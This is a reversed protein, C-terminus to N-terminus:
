EMAGPARRAKDADLVRIGDYVNAPPWTKSANYVEHKAPNGRAVNDANLSRFG